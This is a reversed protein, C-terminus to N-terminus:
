ETLGLENQLRALDEIAATRRAREREAVLDLATHYGDRNHLVQRLRHNFADLDTRAIGGNMAIMHETQFAMENMFGLVRRDATKALQVDDPDLRGLLCTPATRRSLEAEIRPVVFPGSPRLDAARVDAILASFLTGAHALLLCKRGDIWLLNAYWEDDTAPGDTLTVNQKGILQLVKQTCRLIVLSLTTPPRGRRADRQRYPMVTLSLPSCRM